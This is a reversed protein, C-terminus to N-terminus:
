MTLCTCGRGYSVFREIRPVASASSSFAFRESFDGAFILSGRQEFFAHWQTQGVKTRSKVPISYMTPGHVSVEPVV